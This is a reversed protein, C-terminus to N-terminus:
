VSFPRAELTIVNEGRKAARAIPIRGFSRDLWWRRFTATYGATPHEGGSLQHKHKGTPNRVDARSLEDPEASVLVGNCKIRYLDPREVVLELNRPVESEIVFRYTATFGSDAPFTKSILEDKFQVASDWPNGQMGNKRFAFQAAAYYYVNSLTEGGASIDLYDLKLVNQELREVRLEGSASLQLVDNDARPAPKIPKDSLFLLLSGCPPLNFDMVLGAPKPEFVAPTIKGTVPDWVEASKRNSEITGCSSDAISTNVLFVFEGDAVKRRMHFVIGRDSDARQIRFENESNWRRLIGIADEPRTTLWGRETIAERLRDSVRGDIRSPPSGLCVITGGDILFKGTLDATRSRVNETGPPLVVVEYGRRGVWFRGERVTGHRCIIDECGLDYEIQARELSMLLNFFETGLRNLTGADGQYMWATSTPEIVLIRNFQDGQSLVASVRSFYTALVHYAPWWPEHYSFSQPHDNKRSGRITVYSLHEDLTNVGLAQLWDGIRKMDEFRLDWGGAGYLEVLTRSRGLQNAVSAIERCARVNGFQAHTHEAYQNMLIDIGPRQQWAAMAMNDPVLTCNPWEHEWYHGTFELGLRECYEYYPKGWREIFLDLLTAYYDHRVKRWDGVPRGLSAINSLLSYGWRKEFQQPLDDTWPLGGAPLLQPEDAFVGPVRKGFHSGIERQYAGMTVELFKETVGPLLLDVYCRGGHWPSNAAREVTVVLYSDESLTQGSRVQETVDAIQQGRLGFVALINDQWRPQQQSERFRLGRGRSEPMLEPVWGGAFGSPYSNEDYIWVNMDLREAEALAVKWMRFWDSGLYPTMLGPRPHVFVQKVNQGALDRMTSRVQEETILDNWVWLPASTYERPPNVFQKRVFSSDVPSALLELFFVCTLALGFTGSRRARAITNNNM